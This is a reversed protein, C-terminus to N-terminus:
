LDLFENEVRTPGQQANIAFVHGILVESKLNQIVVGHSNNKNIIKKKLVWDM